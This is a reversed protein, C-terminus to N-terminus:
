AVLACQLGWAAMSMLVAGVGLVTWIRALSRAAFAWLFAILLVIFALLMAAQEAEHFDMGAAALVAIVFATFGWTFTYSGLLAAAIRSLLSM